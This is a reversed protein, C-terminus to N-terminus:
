APPRGNVKELIVALLDPSVEAAVPLVWTEPPAFPACKVADKETMLLADCDDFALDAATFHHHDPFPHAVVDLRLVALLDFFRQPNGIGAVAHVRKGAFAEPLVCRQPERLSQLVQGRLEMAFVRRARCAAPVVGLGGGNIVLADATAVRAAPERLPGAPLLWGNGIGREDMVVIEMDRALRYHQLGDDSILVTCEPHAALLACGAAVRDRGVWVPCDSRRALLLPEDGVEAPDSGAEVARPGVAHGGYGRSIIGPRHGARHLREALWLVLPTKGTGGITVNGVIVVPVPLRKAPLIGIVYLLRRVAAVVGFLLGLPALLWALLCRRQWAAVIFQTLAPSLRTPSSM